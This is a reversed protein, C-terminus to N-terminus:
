EPEAGPEPAAYPLPPGPYPTAPPLPPPPPPPPPPAEDEAIRWTIAGTRGDPVPRGEGDRAAVFRARSRLIRCTATDLASSGSSGTIACDSVRGDAGITLRYQTEGQQEGRLAAAPYDDDSLISFPPWGTAPRPSPAAAPPAPAPAAVAQALMLAILASAPAPM